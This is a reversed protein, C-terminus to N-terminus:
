EKTETQVDGSLKQLADAAAKTADTAKDGLAALRATLRENNTLCQALVDKRADGAEKYAQEQQALVSKAGNAATWNGILYGILMCTSIVLLACLWFSRTRWFMKAATKVAGDGNTM